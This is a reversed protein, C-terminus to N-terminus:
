AWAFFPLALTGNGREGKSLSTVNGFAVESAFGSVFKPHLAPSFDPPL